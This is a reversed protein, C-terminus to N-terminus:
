ECAPASVDYDVSGVPGSCQGATGPLMAPTIDTAAAPTTLTTVVNVVQKTFTSPVTQVYDADASGFVLTPMATDHKSDHGSGSVVYSSKADAVSADYAIAAIAVVITIFFMAITTAITIRTM